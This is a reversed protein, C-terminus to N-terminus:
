AAKPLAKLECRTCLQQQLGCANLYNRIAAEVERNFRKRAEVDGADAGQLDALHKGIESMLQNM